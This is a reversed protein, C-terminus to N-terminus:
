GLDLVEEDALSIVSFGDSEADSIMVFGHEELAEAMVDVFQEGCVQVDVDERDWDDWCVAGVEEFWADSFREGDLDMWVPPSEGWEDNIKEVIDWEGPERYVTDFGDNMWEEADVTMFKWNRPIQRM